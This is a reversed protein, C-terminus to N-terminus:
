TICQLVNYYITLYINKDTEREQYGREIADELRLGGAASGDPDMDVGIAGHM